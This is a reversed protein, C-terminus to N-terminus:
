TYIYKKENGKIERRRRGRDIVTLQKEKVRGSRRM